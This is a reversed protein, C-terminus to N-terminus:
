GRRLVMSTRAASAAGHPDGQDASTVPSSTDPDRHPPTTGGFAQEIRTPGRLPFPSLIEVGRADEPGLHLRELLPVGAAM